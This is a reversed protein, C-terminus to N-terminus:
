KKRIQFNIIVTTGYQNRQIPIPNGIIVYKGNLFLLIQYVFELDFKTNSQPLIDAGDTNSPVIQSFKYIGDKDSQTTLDFTTGIAIFGKKYIGSFQFEVGEVPLGNEDIVKGTVVTPTSPFSKKCAVAMWALPPLLALQKLFQQRKM